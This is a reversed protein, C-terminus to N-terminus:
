HHTCPLLGAASKAELVRMEAAAVQAAFAPDSAANMVADIMTGLTNPAATLVLNGGAGLFRVARAGPDLYAVQAAAGLDDSVILGDFGLRDRVLGRIITPSFVAPSHADIQTYIASSIMLWSAGAAVGTAFPQLDPDSPTTQGDTVGSTNDTNGRVRGLGPFHKVTTIVGAANMGRVFAAVHEAVTQPDTGYARDFRGIPANAKGLAPSLVDTVPALNVNIGAARLQQGWGTAVNQLKTASWGGQVAASPMTSFGPGSLVQVQGGEQDTAVFLGAGGSAATGARQAETTLRTIVAAGATSRGTLFVGAPANAAIVSMAGGLSSAPVGVAFLQGVRLRAPMAALVRAACDTVVPNQTLPAPLTPEVSGPATTTTTTTTPIITTVSQSPPTSTGPSPTGVVQDGGSCAALMTCLVLATVACLRSSIPSM